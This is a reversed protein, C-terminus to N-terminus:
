AECLSDRSRPRDTYKEPPCSCIRKGVHVNLNRTCNNWAPAICTWSYVHSMVGIAHSSGIRNRTLNMRPANGPQSTDYSCPDWSIPGLCPSAVLRFAARSFFIMPAVPDCPRYGLLTLLLGPSRISASPSPPLTVQLIGCYSCRRSIYLWKNVSFRNNRGSRPHPSEAVDGLTRHLM